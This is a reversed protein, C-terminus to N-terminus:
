ESKNEPVDAVTREHSFGISPHDYPDFFEVARAEERPQPDADAVPTCRFAASVNGRPDRDPDDYLGVFQEARVNMGVEEALERECAARATESREVFGGPLVWQGEYPDHDRQVLVVQGDVLVVGDTALARLQELDM